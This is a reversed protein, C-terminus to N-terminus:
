LEPGADAAVRDAERRPEGRAGLDLGRGDLLNILEPPGSETLVACFGARYPSQRPSDGLFGRVYTWSGTNLMSVGTSTIWESRDDGPLPGARHTHGFIAHGGAVDLRQLVEEFARLGGRRLEPATVDPRLPGLGARNLLGVFSAFGAALGARRIRAGGPRELNRWARVQLGGGGRGRVGGGQAVADIWAYMPALTAEYDEARRPGRDPEIAVRAMLGAGLRELIPVTNHRDAYHGHTAYVDDRLWVGPYAARLPAPALWGALRGGLERVSEAAGGIPIRVYGRAMFHRGPVLPVGTELLEEAALDAEPGDGRGLHLFLFAAGAPRAARLPAPIGAMAIDRNRRYDEVCSDLWEQEGAVAEAAVVQSLYSCRICEWEFVRLCATLLRPRAVLYGVRWSSIAYSKSMSRVVVTEPWTSLAGFSPLRARDYVFREYSEDVILLLDNLAALEVV